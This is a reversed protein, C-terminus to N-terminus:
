LVVNATIVPKGGGTITVPVTLPGNTLTTVTIEQSNNSTFKMNSGSIVLKVNVALRTNLYNRVNVLISSSIDSGTYIFDTTAPPTIAVVTAKTPQYIDIVTYGESEGYDYLNTTSEYQTGLSNSTLYIRGATDIAFGTATVEVINHAVWGKDVNFSLTGTWNEGRTVLLQSGDRSIPMYYRPVQRSMEWDIFSHYTLQTNNNANVEYTIWRNRKQSRYTTWHESWYNGGSRDCFLLTIFRRGGTQFQHVKYFFPNDYQSYYATPSTSTTVHGKCIYDYSDTGAPHTLTCNARVIEKTKPNWSYRYFLIRQEEERDYTTDWAGYVQQWCAQYFVKNYQGEHIINSPYQYFYQNSADSYFNYRLTPALADVMTYEYIDLSGSPAYHEAVMMSEDENKGIFFCQRNQARQATFTPVASPTVKFKGFTMGSSATRRCGWWHNSENPDEFFLLSYTTSTLNRYTPIGSLDNGIFTDGRADSASYSNYYQGVVVGTSSKVYYNPKYNDYDLCVFWNDAHGPSAETASARTIYNLFFAFRNQTYIQPYQYYGALPIYSAQLNSTDQGAYFENFRPTLTDVDFAQNEIFIRNKTPDPDEVIYNNAAYQKCNVLRTLAM